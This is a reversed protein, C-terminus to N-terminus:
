LNNMVLIRANMHLPDADCNAKPNRIVRIKSIIKMTYRGMSLVSKVRNCIQANHTCISWWNRPRMTKVPANTSIM